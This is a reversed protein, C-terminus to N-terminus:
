KDSVPLKNLTEQKSFGTGKKIVFTPALNDVSFVTPHKVKLFERLVDESVRYQRGIKAYTIGSYRIFGLATEYSVGLIKAVDEPTLLKEM